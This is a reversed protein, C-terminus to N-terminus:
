HHINSRFETVALRMGNFSQTVFRVSPGLENFFKIPNNPANAFNRFGVTLKTMDTRRDTVECYVVQSGNFPIKHFKINSWIYFIEWFYMLKM